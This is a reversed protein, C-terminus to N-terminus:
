RGPLIAFRSVGAMAKALYISLGLEIGNVVRRVASQRCVMQCTCFAGCGGSKVWLRAVSYSVLTDMDMESARFFDRKAPLEPHNVKRPTKSLCGFKKCVKTSLDVPLQHIKLPVWHRSM